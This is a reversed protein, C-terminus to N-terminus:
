VKTGMVGGKVFLPAFMGSLEDNVLSVGTVAVPEGSEAIAAQVLEVEQHTRPYAYAVTLYGTATETIHRGVLEGLGRDVYGGYTVHRQADLMLPLRELFPAFADPRFGAEAAAVTLRNRVEVPSIAVLARRVAEQQPGTPVFTHPFAIPVDPARQQLGEAIKHNTQLLIELDAGQALILVAEDHIQFREMLAAEAQAALTDPQLEELSPVVRLDISAAGLALTFVIATGIIPGTFRGVFRGLWDTTPLRVRPLTTPLLGPVLLVTFLGSMLIGIGILRGIEELAPFDITMLSFYTAATTTFGMGVSIVTAALLGSAEDPSAGRAREHLFRYYLLLVGDISVGFLMAAGGSAATSLQYFLGNLAATLIARVM